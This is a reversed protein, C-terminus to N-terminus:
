FVSFQLSFPPKSIMMTSDSLMAKGGGRNRPCVVSLCRVVNTPIPQRHIPLLLLAQELLFSEFIVLGFWLAFDLDNRGFWVASRIFQTQCIRRTYSVGTKLYGVFWFICVAVGRLTIQHSNNRISGSNKSQAVDPRERALRHHFALAKKQLCECINVHKIDLNVSFIWLGEYFRNDINGLGEPADIKFVDFRRFAKFNFAANSLGGINWHHMIILM